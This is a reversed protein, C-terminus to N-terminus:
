GAKQWPEFIVVATCSATEIKMLADAIEATFNLRVCAADTRSLCRDITGFHDFLDDGRQAYLRV